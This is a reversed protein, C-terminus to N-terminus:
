YESDAVNVVRLCKEEKPALSLLTDQNKSKKEDEYRWGLDSRFELGSTEAIYKAMQINM